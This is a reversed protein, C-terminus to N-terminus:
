AIIERVRSKRLAALMEVSAFMDLETTVGFVLAARLVEPGFVHTHSDILGPLLTKGSGDIVKADAPASVNPGIAAIKGDRVVVTGRPLVQVGDFVRANQFVLAPGKEGPAAVSQSLACSALFGAVLISMECRPPAAVLTLHTLHTLVASFFGRLKRAHQAIATRLASSKRRGTVERESEQRM